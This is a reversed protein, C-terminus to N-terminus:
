QKTASGAAHLDHEGEAAKNAEGYYTAGRAEGDHGGDEHSFSSAPAVHM